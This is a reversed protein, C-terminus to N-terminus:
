EDKSLLDVYIGPTSDPIVTAGVCSAYFDAPGVAGVIAYAYGMDRMAHLCSLLLVKGIGNGRYEKDVGTPGFYDRCTCEYAAFGIIKKERTAIFCTIPKQAYAVSVEDAWTEGFHKLIFRRLFSIEYPQIRRITIGEAALKNIDEKCDPLNLLNVLMDAM